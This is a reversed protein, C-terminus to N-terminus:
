CLSGPMWRHLAMKMWGHLTITLVTIWADMQASSIKLGLIMWVCGNTLVEIGWKKKRKKV